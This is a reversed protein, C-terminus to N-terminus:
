AKKGPSVKEKSSKYSIIMNEGTDGSFLNVENKGNSLGPIDNLDKDLYDSFVAKCQSTFWVKKNGM